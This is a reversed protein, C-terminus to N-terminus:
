SCRSQHGRCQQVWSHPCSPTRRNGACARRQCRPSSGCRGARCGPRSGRWRSPSSLRGPGVASHQGRGGGPARGRGRRRGWPRSARARPLPVAGAAGAAGGPQYRCHGELPSEAPRRAGGPRSPGEIPACEYGGPRGAAAGRWCGGYRRRGVPVLSRAVSRPLDAHQPCPTSALSTARGPPPRRARGSRGRM